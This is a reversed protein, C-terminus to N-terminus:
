ADPFDLLAVEESITDLVACSLQWGNGADRAEGASGPNVVLVGGVRRVLKCHTHGYLVFDAEAEAFRELLSSHPPVYAGRPEWPTSHVMLLKKGGIELERRLPQGALWDCLARDIDKRQRARAGQPGFFGEEHNGLIVRAGRARLPGVVANSFRFDYISDGLCLLEDVDGILDLARKLGRANCHLDSVIGIKMNREERPRGPQSLSLSARARREPLPLAM